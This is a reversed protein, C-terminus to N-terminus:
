KSNPQIYERGCIWLNGLISLVGIHLIVKEDEVHLQWDYKKVCIDPIEKGSLM